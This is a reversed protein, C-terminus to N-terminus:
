TSSAPPSIGFKLRRILEEIKAPSEVECEWLVIVTWGAATLAAKVEADRAKNRNFKATWWDVRTKPIRHRPCGDHGHWFCGHVFVVIRRSPFVIDPRGPLAKAHLRYRFGAAWLARRVTM